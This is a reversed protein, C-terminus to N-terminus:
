KIVKDVIGYKVAEKADMFFDRDTDQEIVSLKQGTNKALLRNLTERTKIIRKATIEIDSAQGQAGGLPQHIMVESHPLAYRKGKAGSSLIVAGMSAATGVCVTSVNPKIHNMTDVIALGADVSGGPSNVYLTIDAKPDESAM